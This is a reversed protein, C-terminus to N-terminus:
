FWLVMFFYKKELYRIRIIAIPNKRNPQAVASYLNTFPSHEDWAKLLVWYVVMNFNLCRKPLYFNRWSLWTRFYPMHHVAGSLVSIFHLWILFLHINVWISTCSILCYPRASRTQAKGSVSVCFAFSSRYFWYRCRWCRCYWCLLFGRGGGYGDGVFFGTILFAIALYKTM